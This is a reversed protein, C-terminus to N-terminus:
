TNEAHKFNKFDQQRKNTEHLALQMNSTSFLYVKMFLQFISSKRGINKEIQSILSLHLYHKPRKHDMQNDYTGPLGIKKDNM